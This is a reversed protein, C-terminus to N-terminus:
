APEPALQQIDGALARALHRDARNYSHMVTTHDRNFIRGLQPYSLGFMDRLLVISTNRADCVRPTRNTSFVKSPEVVLRECVIAVLETVLGDPLTGDTDIDTLCHPCLRM